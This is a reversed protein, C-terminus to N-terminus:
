QFEYIHQVFLKIFVPFSPFSNYSVCCQKLEKMIIFRHIYTCIDVVFIFNVATFFLLVKKM